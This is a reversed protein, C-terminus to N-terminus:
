TACVQKQATYHFLITASYSFLVTLTGLVINTILVNTIELYFQDGAEKLEDEDITTRKVIAYDVFAETVDGFLKMMLPNVIGALITLFCGIAMLYKDCKTAYRYQFMRPLNKVYFILMKKSVLQLYSVKETTATRKEPYKTM